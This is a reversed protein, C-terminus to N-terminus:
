RDPETGAAGARHEVALPTGTAGAHSRTRAPQPLARAALDSPHEM